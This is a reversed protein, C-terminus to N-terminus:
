KFEMKLKNKEMGVWWDTIEEIRPGQHQGQAGRMLMTGGGSEEAMAETEDSLNMGGLKTSMREEYRRKAKPEANAAAFQPDEEFTPWCQQQQM